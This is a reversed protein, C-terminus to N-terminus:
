IDDTPPTKCLTIGCRQMWSLDLSQRSGLLALNMEDYKMENVQKMLMRVDSLSLKELSRMTSFTITFYQTWQKM